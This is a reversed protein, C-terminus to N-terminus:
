FASNGGLLAKATGLVGLESLRHKRRESMPNAAATSQGNLPAYSAQLWVKEAAGGAM